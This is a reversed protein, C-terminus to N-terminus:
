PHALPWSHFFLLLGQPYMFRVQTQTGPDKSGSKSVSHIVRSPGHQPQIYIVRVQDSNRTICKTELDLNCLGRFGFIYGQSLTLEPNYVRSIHVDHAGSIGRKTFLFHWPNHGRWAYKKM